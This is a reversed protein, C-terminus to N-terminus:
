DGSVTVSGTYYEGGSSSGTRNNVVERSISLRITRVSADSFAVQIGASVQLLGTGEEGAVLLDDRNINLTHHQGPRLVIPDTQSLLRGSSDYIYTTVRVPQSGEENPNFFNYSLRQGPILAVPAIPKSRKAALIILRYKSDTKVSEGGSAEKEIIELSGPLQEPDTGAPAIITVKVLVQARRTEPEGETNLDERAVGSYRFQGPPVEMWESEYFPVSSSNSAHALYFSFSLKLSGAAQETNGASLRIRQGPIIEVSAYSEFKVSGDGSQAEVPQLWVAGGLLGAVALVALAMTIFIRKTVSKLTKMVEGEILLKDVISRWM